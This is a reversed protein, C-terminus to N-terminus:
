RNETKSEELAQGSVTAWELREEESLESAGWVGEQDLITKKGGKPLVFEDFAWRGEGKVRSARFYFTGDAIDPVSFVIRGIPSNGNNQLIDVKTVNEAHVMTALGDRHIHKKLSQGSPDKLNFIIDPDPDAFKQALMLYTLTQNKVGDAEVTGTTMSTVVFEIPTMSTAQPISPILDRTVAADDVVDQKGSTPNNGDCGAWVTIALLLSGLRMGSFGASYRCTPTWM